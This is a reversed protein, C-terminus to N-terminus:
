AYNALLWQRLRAAAERKQLQATRRLRAGNPRSVRDSAPFGCLARVRALAGAQDALFDRYEFTLVRGRPLSAAFTQLYIDSLSIAKLAADLEELSLEVDRDDATKPDGYHHFVGSKCALALSVAQEIRDDRRVVIWYAEDGFFAERVEPSREALRQLYTLSKCMFKSAVFGSSDLYLSNLTLAAQEATTDDDLGAFHEKTLDWLEYGHSEYLDYSLTEAVYTSGCRVESAIFLRKRGDSVFREAPDFWATNDALSMRIASKRM